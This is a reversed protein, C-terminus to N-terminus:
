IFPHWYRMGIYVRYAKDEPTAGSNLVEELEAAQAKTIDLIPSKGGILSYMARTKGATNDRHLRCYAEPSISTL